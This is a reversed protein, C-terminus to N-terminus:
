NNQIELNYKFSGLLYKGLMKFGLIHGLGFFVGRFLPRLVWDRFYRFLKEQIQEGEDSDRFDEDM